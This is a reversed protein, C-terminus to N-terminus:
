SEVPIEVAIPELLDALARLKGAVRPLDNRHSQLEQITQWSKRIELFVGVKDQDATRWSAEAGTLFRLEEGDMEVLYNRGATGIVKM